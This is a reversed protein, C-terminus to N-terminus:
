AEVGIVAGLARLTGVFRPYTQAICEASRIHCEGAARLSLLTALMAVDPAENCDTVVPRLPAAGAGHIVIGQATRESGVGFAGLVALLRDVRQPELPELDTLESHGDACAALACIVPLESEARLRLEGDLGVGLLRQAFVSVDGLPEGLREGHPTVSVQVGMHRMVDLIGTRTPNLGIGRTMVRSEPVLAAAALVHAGLSVDGPLELEFAPLPAEETRPALTVLGGASVIPFGLTSLLREVHDPSIVAEAVATGGLCYLGSILLAGKIAADPPEVQTDSAALPHDALAEITVRQLEGLSAPTPRLAAGRMALHKFLRALARASGRVAVTAPLGQGALAATFLAAAFRDSGLQLEGGPARLGRLGVGRVLVVDSSVDVAVGLEGLVRAVALTRPGADRLRITTQGTALAALVLAAASQLADAPLPVSGLLPQRQPQVVLATV